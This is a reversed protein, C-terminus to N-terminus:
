DAEDKRGGVHNWDDIMRFAIRDEYENLRILAENSATGVLELVCGLPVREEEILTNLNVAYTGQQVAPILSKYQPYREVWKRWESETIHMTPLGLKMLPFIKQLKEEHVDKRSIFLKEFVPQKNEGASITLVGGIRCQCEIRLPRYRFVVIAFDDKQTETLILLLVQRKSILARGKFEKLSGKKPFLLVSAECFTQVAEAKKLFLKGSILEGKEELATSYFWCFYEGLYGRFEEADPDSIFNEFGPFTQDIEKGTNVLVQEPNFHFVESFALLEELKLDRKKNKIREITTKSLTVGAKEMRQAIQACGMDPILAFLRDIYDASKLSM